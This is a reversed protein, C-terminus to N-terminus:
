TGCTEASLRIELGAQSRISRWAARGPPTECVPVILGYGSHLRLVTM